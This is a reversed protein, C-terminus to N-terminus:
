WTIVHNWNKPLTRDSTVVIVKSKFVIRTYVTIYSICTFLNSQLYYSMHVHFDYSQIIANSVTEFLIGHGHVYKNSYLLPYRPITAPRWPLDDHFALSGYTSRRCLKVTWGIRLISLFALCRCINLFTYRCHTYHGKTLVNTTIMKNSSSSIICNKTCKLSLYKHQSNGVTKDDELVFQYTRPFCGTLIHWLSNNWLISSPWYIKSLIEFEIVNVQFLFNIAKVENGGM